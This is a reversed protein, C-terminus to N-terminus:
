KSWRAAARAVASRAGAKPDETVKPENVEAPRSAIWRDLERRQVVPARGAHGIFLDGRAAAERLVRTPDKGRVGALHAAEDLPLWAEPFALGCARQMRAALEPRKEFAAIVGELTSEIISM